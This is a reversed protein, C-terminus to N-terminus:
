QGFIMELEQELLEAVIKNGRANLHMDDSFYILDPETGAKERLATTLDIVSIENQRLFSVLTNNLDDFRPRLTTSTYVQERFPIIVVVFKVDSRQSYPQRSADLITNQTIDFGRAVETISLDTNALWWILNSDDPITDDTRALNYFFHRNHWFFSLTAYVVSNEALWARVPNQWFESERVAVSGFQEFRWADKLDNAFFVWLILKPKLPLGYKTLMRFEQQPGYGLVGMNAFDKGLNKELLEVWCADMEVRSCNAFSDGVVIAFPEGNLGDDRFGIDKYDFSVTSITYTYQDDEFAVPYDVLNRAYKYGLEKDPVLVKSLLDTQFISSSIELPILTPAVYAVVEILLLPFIVGLLILIIISGLISKLKVFIPQKLQRM